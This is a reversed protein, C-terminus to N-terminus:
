KEKYFQSDSMASTLLKSQKSCNYSLIMATNFKSVMLLQFNSELLYTFFHLLELKVIVVAMKSKQRGCPVTLVPLIPILTKMSWSPLCKSAECNRDICINMCLFLYIWSPPQRSNQNYQAPIVFTETNADQYCLSKKGTIVM